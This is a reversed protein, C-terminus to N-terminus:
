GYFIDQLIVLRKDHLMINYKKGLIAVVEFSAGLLFLEAKREKSMLVFSSEVTDVNFRHCLSKVLETNTYSKGSLRAQLNIVKEM